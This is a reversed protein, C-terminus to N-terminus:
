YSGLFRIVCYMLVSCEAPVASLLRHAGLLQQLTRKMVIMPLKVTARHATVAGRREVCYLSHRRRCRVASLKQWCIAWETKIPRFMTDADSLFVQDCTAYNLGNM